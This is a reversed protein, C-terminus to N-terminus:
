RNIEARKQHIDSVLSSLKDDDLGKVRAKLVEQVESSVWGVSRAGLSIPKPFHGAQIQKYLTAKSVATAKLVSSLRIITIPTAHLNM